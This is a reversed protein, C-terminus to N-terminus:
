PKTVMIAVKAPDGAYRQNRAKAVALEVQPLTSAVADRKCRNQEMKEALSRGDNSGCVARIAIHIRQDLLSKGQESSLDLGAFSVERSVPVREAAGAISGTMSLLVGSLIVAKAYINSM